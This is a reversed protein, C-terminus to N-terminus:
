YKQIKNMPYIVHLGFSIRMNETAAYEFLDAIILALNIFFFKRRKSSYGM